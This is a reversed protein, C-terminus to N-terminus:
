FKVDFPGKTKRRPAGYYRVPFELGRFLAEPANVRNRPDPETMRDAVYKAFQGMYATTILPLLENTFNAVGQATPIEEGYKTKGALENGQWDQNSLVNGVKQAVPNMRNYAVNGVESLPNGSKLSLLIAIPIRLWDEATGAPNVAVEKGRKDKGLPITFVRSESKGEAVDRIGSSGQNGFLGAESAVQEALMLGISAKVAAMYQKSAPNEPDKFSTLSGKALKFNTELWDPALLAARMLTQVSRDRFLQETNIGGFRENTMQAAKIGGVKDKLKLYYEMKVTPIIDKFLPDSLWKEQVALAKEFMKVPRSQANKFIHETPSGTKSFGEASLTLGDRVAQDLYQEYKAFRANARKSFVMDKAVQVKDGMSFMPSTIARRLINFGHANLGTNPVGGTLMINKAVDKVDAAKDLWRMVTNAPQTVLYNNIIGGIDRPASFTQGPKGEKSGLISPFVESNLAVWNKPAAQTPKILNNEKLYNYMLRDEITKNAYEEYWAMLDSVKEFRPTLGLKKGIKYTEITKELSFSPKLTLRRNKQEEPSLNKLELLELEKVAKDHKAFIAAVEEPSENWLQPLYNKQEGMEIGTDKLQALKTNFYAKVEAFAPDGRQIRDFAEPEADFKEFHKKTIIGSVQTASQRGGIWQRLRETPPVVEKPKEVTRSKTWQDEPLSEIAGWKGDEGKFMGPPRVIKTQYGPGFEAKPPPIISTATYGNKGGAEIHQKLLGELSRFQEPTLDGPGTYIEGNEMEFIKQKAKAAADKVLQKLQDPTRAGPNAQVDNAWIGKFINFKEETDFIKSLEKTSIRLIEDAELNVVEGALADTMPAKDKTQRIKPIAGTPQSKGGTKSIGLSKIADLPLVTSDYPYQQNIAVQNESAIFRAPNPKKPQPHEVVRPYEKNAFLERVDIEPLAKIERGAPLLKQVEPGLVPAPKVPRDLFMPLDPTGVKPQPLDLVPKPQPVKAKAPAMGLAGMLAEMSGGTVDGERIRNLGGGVSLAGIVKAPTTFPRAVLSALGMPSTFGSVLNGVGEVAGAGFGRLMATAKSDWLKPQSARDAFEKGWQQPQNFIPENAMDWLKKAKNGFGSRKLNFQAEIESDTPDQPWDFEITDSGDSYRYKPM